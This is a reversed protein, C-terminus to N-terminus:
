PTGDGAASASAPDTAFSVATFGQLQAKALVTLAREVAAQRDAMLTISEHTKRAARLADDLDAEAVPAEGVLIPGTQPVTVVLAEPNPDAPGETSPLDVKVAEKRQFTAGLVIFIVLIFAIDILASINIVPSARRHEDFDLM